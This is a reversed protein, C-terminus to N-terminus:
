IPVTENLMNEIGLTSNDYLGTFSNMFTSRRTGGIARDFFVSVAAVESTLKNWFFVQLEVDYKDKGLFSHEAPSRFIMKGNPKFFKDFDSYDPLYGEVKLFGDSKFNVTVFNHSVDLWVRRLNGFSINVDLDFVVPAFSYLLPLNIPSQQFDGIQCM